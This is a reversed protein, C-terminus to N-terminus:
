EDANRFGTGNEVEIVVAKIQFQDAHFNDAVGRDGSMNAPLNVAQEISELGHASRFVDCVEQNTGFCGIVRPFLRFFCFAFVNREGHVVAIRSRHHEDFMFLSIRLAVAVFRRLQQIVWERQQPSSVIENFVPLAERPGERERCGQTRSEITQVEIQDAIDVGVLFVNPPPDSM